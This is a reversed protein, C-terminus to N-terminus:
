AKSLHEQNPVGCYSERNELTKENNMYSLTQVELKLSDVVTLKLRLETNAQKLNKVQM